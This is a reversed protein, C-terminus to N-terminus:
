PERDLFARGDGDTYALFVGAQCTEMGVSTAGKKLFGTGDVVLVGNSAGHHEM